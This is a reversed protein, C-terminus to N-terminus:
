RSGLAALVAIDVADAAAYLSEGDIPPSFTPLKAGVEATAARVLEDFTAPSAGITTAVLAVIAAVDIASCVEG